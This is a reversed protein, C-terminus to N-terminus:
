QNTHQYKCTACKEKILNYLAEPRQFCEIFVRSDFIIIFTTAMNDIVEHFPKWDLGCVTKQSFWPSEEMGFTWLSCSFSLFEGSFAPCKTCNQELGASRCMSIIFVLCWKWMSIIFVLCWKWMSIIFVLCWKWMSETEFLSFNVQEPSSLFAHQSGSCADM